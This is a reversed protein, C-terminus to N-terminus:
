PGLNGRTLDVAALGDDDMGVVATHGDVFVGAMKQDHRATDFVSATGANLGNRADLLTRDNTHAYWAALPEWEARPRGDAFLVTTAPSGIKSIVGAM